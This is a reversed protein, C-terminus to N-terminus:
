AAVNQVEKSLQDTGALFPLNEAARVDAVTLFGSALGKEYAAYREVQSGRAMWNPDFEVLFQTRDPLLTCNM